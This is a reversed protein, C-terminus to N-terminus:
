YDVLSTNHIYDKTDLRGPIVIVLKSSNPDGKAYVALEFTKTKIIEMIIRFSIGLGAAM